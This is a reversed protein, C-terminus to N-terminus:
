NDILTSVNTDIKGKVFIGAILNFNNKSTFHIKSLEQGEIRVNYAISYLTRIADAQQLPLFINLTQKTEKGPLVLGDVSVKAAQIIYKKQVETLLKNGLSDLLEKGLSDLLVIDLTANVPLGNTINFILFTSDINLEPLKDLADSVSKFGQGISDHFEYYSGQNLQMAIKTKIFVKIAADPTIFNPTPDKKISEENLSIKFKYELMDPKPENAFLQDTKGNDKDLTPMDETVWDGPDAPKNKFNVTSNTQGDFWAYVPTVNPNSMSFAKVSDVQFRLYTGINSVATIDVQPNTFKLLGDPLDKNLDIALQLTKTAIVAPEFYGYAVAFSMEDFRTVLQLEATPTIFLPSDGTKAHLEINLPFGQANNLTYLMFNTLVVQTPVGYATPQVLLINPAGSNRMKIQSLPLTLNISINEIPINVDTQNLTLLLVAREILVSDIRETAPTLNIGLNLYGPATQVPLSTQPPITKFALSPFSFNLSLPQANALLNIERFKFETSDFNLYYIEDDAGVVISKDNDNNTLIEGLNVSASGLPVIVSPKLSVEDSINHLDIDAECSVFILCLFILNSIFVRLNM